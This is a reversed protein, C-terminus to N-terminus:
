KKIIRDECTVCQAAHRELGGGRAGGRQAAGRRSSAVAQDNTVRNSKDRTDLVSLYLQIDIYQAVSLLKYSNCYPDSGYAHTMGHRVRYRARPLPVVDCAHPWPRCRPVHRGAPM